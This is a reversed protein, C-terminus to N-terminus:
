YGHNTKVSITWNILGSLMSNVMSVTNDFNIALVGTILFLLGKAGDKNGADSSHVVLVCGRVFWILGATRILTRMTQYIDVSSYTSYSIVNGAGFTTNAMTQIASPLYILVAGMALHIMPVYIKEQSTGGSRKDGIKKFKEIATFLFVAGLLYAGGAILRQLPILSQSINGLMTTLDIINM